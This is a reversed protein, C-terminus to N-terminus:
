RAVAQVAQGTLKTKGKHFLELDAHPPTLFRAAERM